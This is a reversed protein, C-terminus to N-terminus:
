WPARLGDAPGAAVAPRRAQASATWRLSVVTGEGPASRISARGGWEAIREVISRRLGLRVPDVRAPDFGAGADRVTVQLSAPHEGERGAGADGGAGANGNMATDGGAPELSVEVWAERTRAHSVVNALAERVAYSMAVAVPVPVVPPEAPAAPGGRLPSGSHKGPRRRPEARKGTGEGEAAPVRAGAAPNAVTVHVDLGRARMEIAAAEIGILLGGYPRGAARAPGGPDSLAYEMLAVDRRCRGVVEDPDARAPAGRAPAGRAPRALATLTNLVTDHLLREHERRETSRSVVVRQERADRDAQALRVDAGAASRELMRRASWAAVAIVLLLIGAGAPSSGSAAAPAAAADAWYAAGSAVALPAAVATPALWAPAFLQGAMAIYLWNATDGRMAAPVCWGAGLALLVHLGSDLGALPWPPWRRRLYAVVAAEWAVAAAPGALRWAEAWYFSHWIVVQVAIYAIVACRIFSVTRAAVARLATMAPGVPAIGAPASVAPARDPATAGASVRVRPMAAPRRYRALRYKANRYQAM